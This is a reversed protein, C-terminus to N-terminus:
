TFSTDHKHLHFIVNIYIFYLMETFSTDRKHLHLVGTYKKDIVVAHMFHYEPPQLVNTAFTLIKMIHQFKLQIQGACVWLCDQVGVPDDPALNLTVVFQTHEFYCPLM